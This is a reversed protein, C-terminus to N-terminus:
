AAYIPITQKAPKPALGCVKNIKLMAAAIDLAEEQGYNENLYLCFSNNRSLLAQPTSFDDALHPKLWPWESVVYRYHPNLDIGEARIAEAIDEKSINSQSQDVFVPVIFPSGSPKWPWLTFMTDMEDMLAALESVFAQRRLITDPLRKLSAIGIACSLEDTNWNLAPFLFGEPNRDDFGQAWRPKGRDAHALAQRFLDKERSYVVGGSGGTMHIKRYMTSFAAIDGFTGVPRGMFQAGHSQSCDEIVRINRKKAEIVIQDIDTAQGASHVVLVASVNANVRELFQESGMNYDNPRTDALRPKLGNMTIAAISGPDTIPSVIVESGKPLSLAAVALFVAGSGTSVADAYGGGMTDVFDECYKQEFPGQYGPDAGQEQYFRIAEQLMAYEAEGFAKRSPMPKARIKKGGNIALNLDSIRSEIDNLDM